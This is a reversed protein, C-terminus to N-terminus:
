ITTNNKSYADNLLNLANAVKERAEDVFNPDREVDIEEINYVLFKIGKINTSNAKEAFAPFDAKNFCVHLDKNEADSFYGWALGLNSTSFDYAYKIYMNIFLANEVFPFTALGLQVQPIYYTPITGDSVRSVPCKIELLRIKNGNVIIGDPSYKTGPIASCEISGFTHVTWGNREVYKVAVQEMISGWRTASNGQWPVDQAKRVIFENLSQYPNVGLVCALESGGIYGRRGALWEPTGQAPLNKYKDKFANLENM